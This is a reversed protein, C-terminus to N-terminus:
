PYIELDITFVARVPRLPRLGLPNIEKGFLRAFPQRYSYRTLYMYHIYLRVTLLSYIKVLYHPLSPMSQSSSPTQLSIAISLHTIHHSPRSILHSTLTNSRYSTADVRSPTRTRSIIHYSIFRFSCVSKAPSTYIYIPYSYTISHSTSTIIYTFYSRM